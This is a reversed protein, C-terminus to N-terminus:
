IKPIIGNEKVANFMLQSDDSDVCNLVDESTFTCALFFVEFMVTNLCVPLHAAEERQDLISALITLLWYELM